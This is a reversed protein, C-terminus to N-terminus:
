SSKADRGQSQISLSPLDYQTTGILDGKDLHPCFGYFGKASNCNHCLVQFGPPFENKILWRYFTTSSGGGIERRHANGGGDIHDVALFKEETVDCGPCQCKRGYYDLVTKRLRLRYIIGTLRDQERNRRAARKILFDPDLKLQAAVYRRRAEKEKDRDRHAM